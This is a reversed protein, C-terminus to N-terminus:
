SSLFFCIRNPWSPYWGVEPVRDLALWLVTDAPFGEAFLGYSGGPLVPFSPSEPYSYLEIRRSEAAGTISEHYTGRSGTLHRVGGAGSIRMGMTGRELDRFSVRFTRTVSLGDVEATVGVVGPAIGHLDLGRVVAVTADSTRWRVEDLTIEEGAHNTALLALRTSSGEEVVYASAQISLTEIDPPTPLVDCGAFALCTVAVVGRVLRKPGVGTERIENQMAEGM